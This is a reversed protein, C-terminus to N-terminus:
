NAHTLVFASVGNVRSNKAALKDFDNKYLFTLQIFMIQRRFWGGKKFIYQKKIKKLTSAAVSCEFSM